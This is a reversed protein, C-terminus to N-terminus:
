AEGLEKKLLLHAEMLEALVEDKRQLKAQLSAIKEDKLRDTKGARHGNAFAAAGNEFFKRQWTYFQSPAIQLEDCIQSIPVHELLHRRLISIIEPPAFHRRSKESM